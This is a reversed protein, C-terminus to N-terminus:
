WYSPASCPRSLSYSLSSAAKLLSSACCLLTTVAPRCDVDLNSLFSAQISLPKQPHVYSGEYLVCMPLSRTESPVVCPFLPLLVPAMATQM